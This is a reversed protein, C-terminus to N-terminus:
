LSVAEHLDIFVVREKNRIKKELEMKHAKLKGLAFWFGTHRHLVPAKHQWPDCVNM